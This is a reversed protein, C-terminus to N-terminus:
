EFLNEFTKEFDFNNKKLLDLITEDSFVTEEIAFM